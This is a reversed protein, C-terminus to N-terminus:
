QVARFIAGRRRYYGAVEREGRGVAWRAIPAAEVIMGGSVILGFTAHPLLVQIIRTM